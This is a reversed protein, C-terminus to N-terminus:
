VLWLMQVNGLHSITMMMVITTAGLLDVQIITSPLPDVKGQLHFTGQSCFSEENRQLLSPSPGEKRPLTARLLVATENHQRNLV